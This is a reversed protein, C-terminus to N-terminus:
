SDQHDHRTGGTTQDRRRVKGNLGQEERVRSGVSKGAACGILGGSKTWAARFKAKADDLTRAHGNTRNPIAPVISIISWV